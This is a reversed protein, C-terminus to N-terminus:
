GSNVSVSRKLTMELDVGDASVRDVTNKQGALMDMLVSFGNRFKVPRLQLM